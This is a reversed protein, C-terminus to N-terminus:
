ATTEQIMRQRVFARVPEPLDAWTQVEFVGGPGYKSEAIMARWGSPEPESEIKASSAPNMAVVPTQKRPQALRISATSLTLQRQIPRKVFIKPKRM